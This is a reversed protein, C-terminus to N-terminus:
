GDPQHDEDENQYEQPKASILVHDLLRRHVRHIENGSGLCASASGCKSTPMHAQFNALFFQTLSESM